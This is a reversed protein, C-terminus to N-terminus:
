GLEAAVVRTGVVMELEEQGERGKGAKSSPRSLAAIHQHLNWILGQWNQQSNILAPAGSVPATGAGATAGQAASIGRERLVTRLAAPASPLLATSTCPFGKREVMGPHVLMGCGMFIEKAFGADAWPHWARGAQHRRYFGQHPSKILFWEKGPMAPDWGRSGSPDLPSPPTHSVRFPSEGLRPCLPSSHSCM